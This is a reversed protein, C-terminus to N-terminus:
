RAEAEDDIERVGRRSGDGVDELANGVRQEEDAVGRAPRDVVVPPIEAVGLQGRDGPAPSHNTQHRVRQHDVRLRGVISRKM